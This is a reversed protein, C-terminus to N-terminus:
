EASENLEATHANLMITYLLPNPYRMSRRLARVTPPMQMTTPGIKVTSTHSNRDPPCQTTSSGHNPTTSSCFPMVSMMKPESTFAPRNPNTPSTCTFMSAAMTGCRPRVTAMASWYAIMQTM